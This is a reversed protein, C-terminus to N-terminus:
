NRVHYIHFVIVWMFLIIKYDKIINCYLPTRLGFLQSNSKWFLLKKWIYFSLEIFVTHNAWFEVAWTYSPPSLFRPLDESKHQIMHSLRYYEYFWNSIGKLLTWSHNHIDDQLYLHIFRGIFPSFITQKRNEVSGLM